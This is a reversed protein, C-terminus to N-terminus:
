KAKKEKIKKPKNSQSRRNGEEKGKKKKSGDKKSKKDEKWFNKKRGNKLGTDEDDDWASNALLTPKTGERTAMRSKPRVIPSGASGSYKGIQESPPMLALAREPERIKEAWQVAKRYRAVDYATFDKHDSDMESPPKKIANHSSFDEQKKAADEAYNAWKNRPPDEYRLERAGARWFKASAEAGEAGTITTAAGALLFCFAISNDLEKEAVSKKKAPSSTRQAKIEEMSGIEPLKFTDGGPKVMGSGALQALLANAM